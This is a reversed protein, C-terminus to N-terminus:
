SKEYTIDCIAGGGTCRGSATDEIFTGKCIFRTGDIFTGDVDFEGDSNITGTVDGFGSSVGQLIINEDNQIVDIQTDFAGLCILTINTLTYRGSVDLISNSNGNGCGVFLVLCWAIIGLLKM